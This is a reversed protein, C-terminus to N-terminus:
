QTSYNRFLVTSSPLSYNRALCSIFVLINKTQQNANNSVLVNRGLKHYEGKSLVREIYIWENIDGISKSHPQGLVKLADNKNSSNVTLINSRNELFIIGHNKYPEQFKCGILIIFFPLFILKNHNKIKFM